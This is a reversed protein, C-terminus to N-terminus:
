ILLALVWVEGASYEEEIEIDFREPKIIRLSEIGQDFTSKALTALEPEDEQYLDFKIYYPILRLFKDDIDIEDDYKTDESISSLKKYYVLKLNTPSYKSSVVITNSYYDFPINPLYNEDDEYHIEKINDFNELNSLDFYNCVKTQKTLLDALDIVEPEFIEKSNIYDIARNISEVMNVLYKAYKPQNKIINFNDLLLEEDYNINMIRLAEFEIEGLKM